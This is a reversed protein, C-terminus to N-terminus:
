KPRGVRERHAIYLGSSIIIGAGILTWQDPFHGFLILGFVTAGVLQGYSFPSIVAAPGRQFAMTFFYHGLAAFLGLGCMLVIDLTQTPTEWAPLALPAAALAGVVTAVTASTEANEEGAYKRTILAYFTSCTMSAVFFLIYPNTEGLGPRIVVLAGIFGVGVAAWRRAGVHEGLFPVSLATILLPSTMSITAAISLDMRALGQFYLASSGFLLLGRLTQVGLHRPRFLRLGRRPFFILVMVLLAGVYRAWVVQRMDFGASSLLKASANLSSFCLVALCMLLIGQLVRDKPPAAIAAM